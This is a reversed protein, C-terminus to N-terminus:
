KLFPCFDINCVSVGSKYYPHNPHNCKCWESMDIPEPVVVTFHICDSRNEAFMEYLNEFISEAERKLGKMIIVKEDIM